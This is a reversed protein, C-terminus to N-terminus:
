PALPQLWWRRQAPDLCVRHRAFFDQGLFGRLPAPLQLPAGVFPGARLPRGALSLGSALLPLTEPAVVNRSAGTDLGLVLDPSGEATQLRLVPLSGLMEFSGSEAGCAPPLPAPESALLQLRGAPYDILLRHRRLWGWGLYGDVGQPPQAKPWTRAQLPGAIDHGDLTLRQVEWSPADPTVPLWNRRLALMAGGGTDLLLRAPRGDIDAHILPLGDRLEFRIDLPQAGAGSLTAALLAAALPSKMM